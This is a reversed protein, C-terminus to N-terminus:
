RGRAELRLHDGNLHHGLSLACRVCILRGCGHCFDGPSKVARRHCSTCTRATKDAM